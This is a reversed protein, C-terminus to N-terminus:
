AARRPRATTRLARLKASLQRVLQETTLDRLRESAAQRGTRGDAAAVAEKVISGARARIYGRSEAPSMAMARREIRQWVQEQFDAALREALSVLKSEGQFWQWISNM